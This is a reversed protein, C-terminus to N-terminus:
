ARNGVVRHGCQKCAEIAVREWKRQREARDAAELRVVTRQTLLPVVETAGLEVAKEIIWEITSGKPVAVALLLRSAPAGITRVPDGRFANLMAVGADLAAVADASGHSVSNGQADNM